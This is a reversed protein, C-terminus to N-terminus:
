RYRKRWLVIVVVGAATIIAISAREYQWTSVISL